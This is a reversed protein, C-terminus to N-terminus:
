AIMRSNKSISYLCKKETEELMVRGSNCDIVNGAVFTSVAISRPIIFTKKEYFSGIDIRIIQNYLYSIYNEIMVNRLEFYANEKPLLSKSVVMAEETYSIIENRHSDYEVIIVKGNISNRFVSEMTIKNNLMNILHKNDTAVIVSKGTENDVNLCLYKRNEYDVCVFLIPFDFTVLVKELYLQGIEKIKIWEKGM